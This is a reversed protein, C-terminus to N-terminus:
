FRCSRISADSRSRCSRPAEPNQDCLQYVVRRIMNVAAAFLSSHFMHCDCFIPFCFGLVSINSFVIRDNGVHGSPYMIFYLIRSIESADFPKWGTDAAVAAEMCVPLPRDARSATRLHFSIATYRFISQYKTRVCHDSRLFCNLDLQNRCKNYHLFYNSQFGEMVNGATTSQLQESCVHM